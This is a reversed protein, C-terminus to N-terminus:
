DRPSPSTYLLCTNLSPPQSAHSFGGIVGDEGLGVSIFQGSPAGFEDRVPVDLLWPPVHCTGALWNGAQPHPRRWPIGKWDDVSGGLGDGWLSRSRALVSAWMCDAPRGTAFLWWVLLDFMRAWGSQMPPASGPHTIRWASEGAAGLDHALRNYLSWEGFSGGRVENPPWNPPFDKAYWRGDQYLTTVQQIAERSGDPGDGVWVKRTGSVWALALERYTLPPALAPHEAIRLGAPSWPCLAMHPGPRGGLAMVGDRDVGRCICAWSPPFGPPAVSHLWDERVHFLRPTGDWPSAMM